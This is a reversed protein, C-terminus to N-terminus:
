DDRLLPALEVVVSSIELRDDAGHVTIEGYGTPAPQAHRVVVGKALDVVWYEPVGAAAYVRAKVGLDKRRSTRSVEVLLRAESPHAHRYNAAPVVAIDPEPESRESAAWPATVRVKLGDPLARTLLENLQQIVWAHDAGEPSMQVLSGEILEIKEDDFAGQDVLRDYEVRRLPRLLDPLEAHVDVVAVDILIPVREDTCRGTDGIEVGLPSL